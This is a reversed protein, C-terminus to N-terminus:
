LGYTQGDAFTEEIEIFNLKDTCTSPHHVITNERGGNLIPAPLQGSIRLSPCLIWIQDPRIKLINEM